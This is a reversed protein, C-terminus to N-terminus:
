YLDLFPSACTPEYLPFKRFTVNRRSLALQQTWVRGRDGTLKWSYLSAERGGLWMTSGDASITPQVVTSSDFLFDAVVNFPEEVKLHLIRGVDGYGNGTSEGWYVFDVNNVTVLKPPGFPSFFNGPKQSLINGDEQVSLISAVGDEPLNHLM